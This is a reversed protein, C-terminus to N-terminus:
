HDQFLAQFIPVSIALLILVPLNLLSFTHTVCHPTVPTEQSTEVVAAEM